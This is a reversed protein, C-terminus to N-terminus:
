CSSSALGNKVNCHLLRDITWFIKLVTGTFIVFPRFAVIFFTIFTTIRPWISKSIMLSTLIVFFMQASNQDSLESESIFSSEVEVEIDSARVVQISQPGGLFIVLALCYPCVLSICHSHITSGQLPQYRKPPLLFSSNRLHHFILHDMWIQLRRNKSDLLRGSFPTPQHHWWETIWIGDDRFAKKQVPAPTTITSDGPVCSRLCFPTTWSQSICSCTCQQLKRSEFFTSATSLHFLLFLSVILRPWFRSTGFFQYISFDNDLGGDEIFSTRTRDM